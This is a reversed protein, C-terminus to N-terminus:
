LNCIRRRAKNGSSSAVREEKCFEAFRSSGGSYEMNKRREVVNNNAWLSPDRGDTTAFECESWRWGHAVFRFALVVM